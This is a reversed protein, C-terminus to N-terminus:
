GLKTVTMTLPLDMRVPGHDHDNFEVRATDGNRKKVVGTVPQDTGDPTFEIKTNQPARSTGPQFLDAVRVNIRKQM